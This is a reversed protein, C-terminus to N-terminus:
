WLLAPRTPTSSSACPIYLWTSPRVLGLTYIALDFAPSTRLFFSSTAKERGNWNFSPCVYNTQSKCARGYYNLRGAKEELYFPLWYHFGSAETQSKYDGLMVHEFGSTDLNSGWASRKYLDFWIRRLSSKLSSKNSVQGKCLLYDYLFQFTTTAMLVDLFADEEAKEQATISEAAWKNPNYNDMLSLFTKYLKSNLKKENVYSFLKQSARDKLNNYDVSAQDNISVDYTSLGDVDSSWLEETVDSFAMCNGSGTKASKAPKSYGYGSSCQTSFDPCCNDYTSCQSSCQCPQAKDYSSFCRDKCTAGGTSECQASYDKCCSNFRVCPSNCQCARSPDFNADCRGVCSEGDDFLFCNYPAIINLVLLVFLLEM